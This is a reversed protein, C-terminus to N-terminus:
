EVAALCIGPHLDFDQGPNYVTPYQGPPAIWIHGAADYEIVYSTTGPAIHLFPGGGSSATLPEYNTVYTAASWPGPPSPYAGHEAMYAELAVEVSKADAACAALAAPSQDPLTASAVSTTTNVAVSSTSSTTHTSPSSSCAPVVALVVLVCGAAILSRASGRDGKM